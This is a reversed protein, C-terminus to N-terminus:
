FRLGKYDYVVQLWVLRGPEPAGLVDPVPDDFLNAVTGSVTVGYRPLRYGLTLDTVARAPMDHGLLTATSWYGSEFGFRNHYRSKM